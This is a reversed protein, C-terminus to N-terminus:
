INMKLFFLVFVGMCAKLDKLPFNIFLLSKSFAGECFLCKIIIKKGRSFTFAISYYVVRSVM